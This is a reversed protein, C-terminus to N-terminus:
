SLVPCEKSVQNSPFIAGFKQGHLFFDGRSRGSDNKPTALQCTRLLLFDPDQKKNVVPKNKCFLGAFDNM